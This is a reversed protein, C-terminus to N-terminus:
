QRPPYPPPPDRQRKLGDTLVIGSIRPRRRGENKRFSFRVRPFFLCCRSVIRFM